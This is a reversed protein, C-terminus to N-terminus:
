TKLIKDRPKKSPLKFQMECGTSTSNTTTIQAFYTRCVVAADVADVDMKLGAANEQLGDSYWFYSMDLSVENELENNKSISEYM